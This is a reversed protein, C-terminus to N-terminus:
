KDSNHFETKSMVNNVKQNQNQNQNEFNQDKTFYRCLNGDETGVIFSQHGGRLGIGEIEGGGGQGSFNRKELSDIIERM